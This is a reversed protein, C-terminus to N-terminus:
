SGALRSNREKAEKALTYIDRGYMESIVAINNLDVNEDKMIKEIIISVITEQISQTTNKFVNKVQERNLSLVSEIAKKDLLKEYSKELSLLKPVTPHLIVFKCDEAFSRNNHVINEVDEYMINQTQGFEVFNYLKGRGMGETSLTLTHNTLSMVKIFTKFPIEDQTEVTAQNNTQQILQTPQTTSEEVKTEKEKLLKQLMEEMALLKAELEIEKTSKTNNNNNDNNVQVNKGVM